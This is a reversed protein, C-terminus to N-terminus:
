ATSIDQKAYTDFASVVLSPFNLGKSLTVTM